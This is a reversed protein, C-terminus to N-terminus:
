ISDLVSYLPTIMSIAFFGVGAGVVVMLIPEIITSMNKTKQEVEGEYFAAVKMLMDSLKGTEEGVAVMEGLLIPYLTDHETIVQSLTTGKQVRTGAEKLVDKFFSNQVVDQTISLSDILSVGSSLLSSLTRATRASNIQQTLERIIPLHLLLLDFGRKGRKSKFFFRLSFGLVVLLIFAVVTYEEFFESTSIILQTSFPLDVDLEEFVGTLIPVVYIMMFVGIILMASVVIGPYMLAGRVRRRLLYSQEMHEGIIELAEPLKGSEEGAHIMSTALQPFVKPFEKLAASLSNGKNVNEIVTELIKKFNKNSTQKVLVGLARVLPLGAKIMAALNRMFVIKDRLRVRNLLNEFFSMFQHKESSVEETFIVTEGREKLTHALEFKDRANLAGAVTKGDKTIARYTFKM